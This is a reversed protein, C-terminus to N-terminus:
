VRALMKGLFNRGTWKQINLTDKQGLGVGTGWLESASAEGLTKEGTDLLARLFQPHQRFKEILAPLVTEEVETEWRSELGDKSMIHLLGKPEPPYHIKWALEEMERNKALRARAVTIFKEM